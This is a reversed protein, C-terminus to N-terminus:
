DEWSQGDLEEIGTMGNYLIFVLVLNDEDEMPWSNLGVEPVEGNVVYIWGSAEYFNKETISDPDQKDPNKETQGLSELEDKAKESIWAGRAIGSRRIGALYSDKFSPTIGCAELAAEISDKASDGEYLQVEASDINGLHLIPAAITVKATGVPERNGQATFRITKTASRGERDWARITVENSGEALFARFTTKDGSSGSSNLMEGNCTVTYEGEENSFVPVNRNKYDTVRIWFTKIDGRVREGQILNTNIKPDKEREEQARSDDTRTTRKDEPDEGKPKKATTSKGGGQGTTRNPKKRTTNEKASTRGSDKKGTKVADGGSGKTNQREGTGSRNGNSKTQGDNRRNSSPEPQKRVTTPQVEPQQPQDEKKDLEKQRRDEIEKHEKEQERDVRYGEGTLYVQSRKEDLSSVRNEPVYSEQAYLFVVMGLVIVLTM